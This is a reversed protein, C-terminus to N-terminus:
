PECRRVLLAVLGFSLVAAGLGAALLALSGSVPLDAIVAELLGVSLTCAILLATARARRWALGPEEVSRTRQELSWYALEATLLLAPGYVAATLDLAGGRVYLSIIFEGGLIVLAWPIGGARGLVLVAGLLTTAGGGLALLAPAHHTMAAPAVALALCM